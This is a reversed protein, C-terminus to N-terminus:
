YPLRTPLKHPKRSARMHIQLLNLSLGYASNRKQQELPDAFSSYRM